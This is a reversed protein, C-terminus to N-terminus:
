RADGSEREGPFGRSLLHGESLDGERQAPDARRQATDGSIRGPRAVTDGSALAVEVDYLVPTEPSWLAPQAEFETAGHGDRLPVSHEVGLEPIRITASGAGSPGDTDVAARIKRFSSGPVLAISWRKIFNEPVRVLSVSRYLGGYNFWDTNDMPIQSSKRQNNVVLIIRNEEALAGTVEVYFPTSGGRHTGLCRRNLFVTTEYNAAGVKLFVRERAAGADSAGSGSSTGRARYRFTRTYIGAGEYNLYEPSTMNWCSPVAVQQWHEWDYDPPRPNGHGDEGIEAFWRARLLTDYPDISFRWLGDLSEEPRGSDNLLSHRDIAPSRYESSYDVKHIDHDFNSPQQSIM